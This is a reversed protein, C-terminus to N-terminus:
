CSQPPLSLMESNCSCHAALGQSSFLPFSFMHWIRLKQWDEYLKGTGRRLNVYGLVSMSAFLTTIYLIYYVIKYRFQLLTFSPYNRDTRLCSFTCLRKQGICGEKPCRALSGWIISTQVATVLFLSSIWRVRLVMAEYTCRWWNQLVTSICYRWVNRTTCSQM